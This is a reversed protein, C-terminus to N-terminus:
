GRLKSVAIVDYGNNKAVSLVRELEAEGKAVYRQPDSFLRSQNPLYYEVLYFKM